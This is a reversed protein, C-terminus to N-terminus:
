EVFHWLNPKQSNFNKVKSQNEGFAEIIPFSVAIFCNCMKGSFTKFIRSKITASSHGNGDVRSQDSAIVQFRYNASLTLPRIFKVSFVCIQHLNQKSGEQYIVKLSNESIYENHHIKAIYLDVNRKMYWIVFTELIEFNLNIPTFIAKRRFLSPFVVFM